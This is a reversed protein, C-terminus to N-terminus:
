IDSGIELFYARSNYFPKEPTNNASVMTTLGQTVSNFVKNQLYSDQVTVSWQGDEETKWYEAVKGHSTFLPQKPERYATFMGPLNSHKIYHKNFFLDQKDIIVLFSQNLTLYKTIVPNSYFQTLSIQDSNTTSSDLELSTFDLYPLSEYFRQLLPLRGVNLCFTNNGVPFFIGKEPRVLYGGMVMMVTKGSTDESTNIYVRDALDSTDGQNHIMYPYIPKTKIPAINKFSWIGLQNQRSKLSSAGGDLVYLYDGDTDTIHFLGNVSVLCHNYVDQMDTEPDPREIRLDKREARPILAGFAANRGVIQAKYGGRFADTYYAFKTDVVPISTVTTLTNSGNATFLDALTGTFASYELLFSDMDVYIPDVTFNASLTLYVKRFTQFIQSVPLASITALAITEWRSEPLKSIGFANTVTYMNKGLKFSFFDKMTKNLRRALQIALSLVCIM